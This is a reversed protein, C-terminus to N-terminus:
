SSKRDGVNRDLPYHMMSVLTFLDVPSLLDHMWYLAIELLRSVADQLPHM